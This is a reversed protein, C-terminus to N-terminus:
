ARLADLVQPMADVYMAVDKLKGASVRSWATYDQYIGRILVNRKAMERRFAEANLDGLNVYVFSTQSPATSLGNRQAADVIMERAEHIRARSFAVFGTDDFSAVAAAVGAQNLMYNGLGYNRLAATTEPTAMVYGVRLGALGYVKSFTRAVVVDYGERILGVMSNGQPDDTIENYAEDILVTCKQSAKKCFARLEEADLLMGTPNNPNCIQVLAVDDTIAAYLADLDIGLDATKPTRVLAGGQRLALRTTTDWFLDPGLIKGQPLKARALDALAGSSGSSLTIQSVPLAFHESLMDQLRKVSKDAYYAGRTVAQKMAAVANPSPGYPNENANLKAIGPAPGYLDSAALGLRPSLAAAGLTATSAGIFARRSLM